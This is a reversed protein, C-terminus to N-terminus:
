AARAAEIQGRVDAIATKLDDRKQTLVEMMKPAATKLGAPPKGPCRGPTPMGSVPVHHARHRRLTDDNGAGKIRHVGAACSQISPLNYANFFGV